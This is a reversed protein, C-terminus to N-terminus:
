SVTIGTISYSDRGSKGAKKEWAIQILEGTGVNGRCLEAHKTDFTTFDSEDSGVVIYLTWKTKGDSKVGHQERVEKIAGVWPQPPDTRQPQQVSTPTSSRAPEGSPAGQRGDDDFGAAVGVAAKLTYRQLYTVVSGIAQIPNKNGSEDIPGALTTEESHGDQHSIICTVAVYGRQTSDTRWRFSLGNRAMVPSLAETIAALDEYRYHTRGKSTTFDVNKSKVIAPLEGRLAAMASEYARRAQDTQWRESLAVLRELVEINAGDQVARSLMELPTPAEARAMARRENAITLAAANENSM